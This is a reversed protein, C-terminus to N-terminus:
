QKVCQGVASNCTEGTPCHVSSSCPLGVCYASTNFCKQTKDNCSFNTPCDTSSACATSACNLSNTTAVCLVGLLVDVGCPDTTDTVGLQCFLTATQFQAQCTKAKVLAANCLVGSSTNGIKPCVMTKATTWSSADACAKDVFRQMDTECEAITLAVGASGGGTGGGTGGGAGGGASGGGVGGTAGSSCAVFTLAFVMTLLTKM